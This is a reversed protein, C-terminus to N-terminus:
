RANRAPGMIGRPSSCIVCFVQKGIKSNISSSGTKARIIHGCNLLYPYSNFTGSGEKYGLNTASLGGNTREHVEEVSPLGDAETDPQNTSRQIPPELNSVSPPQYTSPAEPSLARVLVLPIYVFLWLGATFFTLVIHLIHNTKKM